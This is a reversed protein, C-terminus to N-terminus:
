DVNDQKDCGKSAIDFFIAIYTNPICQLDERIKYGKPAGRFLQRIIALIDLLKGPVRSFGTKM